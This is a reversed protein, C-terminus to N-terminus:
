GHPVDLTDQADSPTYIPLAGQPLSEVRILNQGIAQYFGHHRGCKPCAFLPKKGAELLAVALVAVRRKARYKRLIEQRRRRTLKRRPRPGVALEVIHLIDQPTRRVCVLLGGCMCSLNTPEGKIQNKALEELRLKERRVSEEVIERIKTLDKFEPSM